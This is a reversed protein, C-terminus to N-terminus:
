IKYEDLTSAIFLEGVPVARAALGQRHSYRVLTELARRNPEVGFPWWDAGMLRRTREVEDLLWPLLDALAVPDGLRALAREKARCFADYLSRAVWPAREVVDRRLVVTHMIPFIGTRAFYAEEVARYDAFLRRVRRGDFTSPARPGMYADIAGDALLRALTETPGLEEIRVGPVDVALKEVRGPQELGGRVWVVDEPRVGHDDELIGRIWVNATLQYEPVGVRRGRLDEPREIGADANVYIGSHRFMRSPFVPIAQLGDDGRSRRVLYSSFSMEAADFEAHRNMRWFIEEVPLCLVTLDIGTPRIDGVALPATRDYLDCALTLAIAV